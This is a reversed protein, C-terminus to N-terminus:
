PSPLNLSRGAARSAPLLCFLPQKTGTGAGDCHSTAATHTRSYSTPAATTATGSPQDRPLVLPSGAGGMGEAGEM